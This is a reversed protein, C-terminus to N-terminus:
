AEKRKMEALAKSLQDPCSTGNRCDIGSLKTIAEDIKMGPLLASLGQTNGGCGAEFSVSRIFEGETVIDIRKSCTGKTKYSYTM